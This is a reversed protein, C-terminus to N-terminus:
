VTFTRYSGYDIREGDEFKREAPTKVPLSPLTDDQDGSLDPLPDKATVPHSVLTQQMHTTRQVGHQAAQRIDQRDIVFHDLFLAPCSQCMPFRTQPEIMRHRIAAMHPGNWFDWVSTDYVTGLAVEGDADRCCLIFRGDWAIIAPGYYLEQCVRSLSRERYTDRISPTRQENYYHLSPDSPLYERALGEPPQRGLNIYKRKVLDIGWQSCSQVLSDWSTENKQTALMQVELIPTRQSQQQRAEVLARLNSLVHSLNGGKRYHAYSEQDIGDISIILHDIGAQVFNEWGGAPTRSLNTFLKTQLGYRKASAILENIRPNLLPEGYFSLIVEEVYWAIESFIREALEVALMGKPATSQRAGVPCLPCRYNCTNTSELYVTLPYAGPVTLRHELAYEVQASNLIQHLKTM